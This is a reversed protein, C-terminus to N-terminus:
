PKSEISLSVPFRSCFRWSISFLAVSHLCFPEFLLMTRPRVDSCGVVAPRTPLIRWEHLRSLRKLRRQRRGTQDHWNMLRAMRQQTEGSSGIVPKTPTARKVIAVDIRGRQIPGHCM